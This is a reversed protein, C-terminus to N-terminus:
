LFEAMEREFREYDEKGKDRKKQQGAEGTGGVAAGGGLGAGIGVQKLAGMLSPKVGGEDQSERHTPLGGTADIKGLGHNLTTTATSSGLSSSGAIKKRRMHTPVFATAEAKLDRLVPAASITAAAANAGGVPAFPSATTSSSSSPPPPPPSASNPPRVISPGDQSQQQQRQAYRDHQHGQFTKHPEDSLPDQIAGPPPRPPLGRTSHGFQRPGGRQAHHAPPPYPRHRHDGAQGSSPMPGTSPRAIQVRSSGSTSLRAQPPPPGQPMPIDDSDDSDADSDEDDDEQGPPPGEPLPIDDEDEEDDDGDDSPEADVQAHFAALEEATPPRERYPMGPPPVGFPNFVPDYYLSREPHKLKGDKTFLGPPDKENAIGGSAGAGESSRAPFVLHRHEPHKEVYENKAKNVRALEAKLSELQDRDDKSLNGGSQQLSRIEQEIGKTDRKVLSIEKQKQRNQKNRALEKKRQQKRHADVSNKAAM